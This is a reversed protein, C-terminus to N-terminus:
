LILSMLFCGGTIAGHNELGRGYGSKGEPVEAPKKPLVQKKLM